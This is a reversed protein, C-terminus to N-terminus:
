GGFGDTEVRRISPVFDIGDMDEREPGEDRRRRRGAMEIEMRRDERSQTSARSTSRQQEQQQAMLSEIAPQDREVMHYQNHQRESPVHEDLNQMLPKEIPYGNEQLQPLHNPSPPPLPSDQPPYKRTNAIGPINAEDYYNLQPTYATAQLFGETLRPNLPAEEAVSDMPAAARPNASDQRGYISNTRSEYANRAARPLNRLTGTTSRSNRRDINGPWDWDLKFTSHGTEPSANKADEQHLLLRLLQQRQQDTEPMMKETSSTSHHRHMADRARVM